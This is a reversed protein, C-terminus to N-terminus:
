SIVLKNFIQELTYETGPSDEVDYMVRVMPIKLKPGLLSQLDSPSGNVVIDAGSNNLTAALDNLQQETYGMAPIVDELHPFAQFVTVYSGVAQPKPDVIDLNMKRSMVYGAGFATNGHTLTPGDDVVVVRKGRVRAADEEGNEFKTVSELRVIPITSKDGKTTKALMKLTREVSAIDHLSAEHCKTLVFADAMRCNTEGPHYRYEHGQRLPDALVLLLDSVFFSVENNGGDFVIVDAEKEAERLILEYDVGSFIVMGNTVYQEYEEREEVTCANDVLDQMTAYRMCKQKSLDGYPMPERVAVVRKGKNQFFRMCKRSISSKGVGTRVACVSVVPKTSKLQVRKPTILKFDSGSALVISALHMVQEHSIDSYAFVAQDINNQKIYESLTSEPIFPIGQPYLSGALDAPYRREAGSSTTTTGLNQEGCFSFAVVEKTDDQRFVVNFLDIDYGLAGLIVM